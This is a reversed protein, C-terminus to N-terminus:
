VLHRGACPRYGFYRGWVAVGSVSGDAASAPAFFKGSERRRLLQQKRGKTRDLDPCLGITDQEARRGITRYTKEPKQFPLFRWAVVFSFPWGWWMSQMKSIESSQVM